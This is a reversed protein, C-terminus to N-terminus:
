QANARTIVTAVRNVAVAATRLFERLDSVALDNYHVPTMALLVDRDNGDSLQAGDLAFAQCWRGTLYLRVYFFSATLGGM